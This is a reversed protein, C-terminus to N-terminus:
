NSFEWRVGFTSAFGPVLLGPVHFINDSGQMNYRNYWVLFSGIQIGIFGRYYTTAPITVAVSDATQGLVGAGWREMSVQVKLNFIGSKFTPLFKSQITAAVMAHEPPQGEPTTRVPNSFWGSVSIWQRPSIRAAATVWDSRSLESSPTIFAIGPYQAYAVPAFTKNTTFSGELDAFSSRWSVIVSRDDLEQATDAVLSPHFVQKGFQWVAGASFGLPLTIGGRATMWRSTREGDHSQYVGELSLSFWRIPAVSARLRAELPTWDSRWFVSGDFAAAPLRYGLVAGAQNLSRQYKEVTWITDTGIVNGQDDLTESIEPISDGPIIEDVWETRSFLLDARPGLGDTGAFYARATLDRRRGHRPASITDAGALQPQRNPSNQWFRVEVGARATPVYELRITGQTNTYGGLGSEVPVGLHDFGLGFGLGRVGRKELQGQYREVRRDGSAIGIRSYPAARDNRHTFLWVRLQGPSREIEMRDILSLPFVSPDVMVSDPGIPLYPVGDVLYEVSAAGHAQYNPLEPRGIWGGRLLFVGPIRTLLDGVTEAGFWAISDRDFVHRTNAPLLAGGGIRPPVPILRKAEQQSRLFLATYDTTDPRLSDVRVTDVVQSAAPAAVVATMAAAAIWIRRIM